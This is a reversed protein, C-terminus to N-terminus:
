RADALRAVRVDGSSARADITHPSDLSQDVEVESDGSDTDSQVRYAVNGPVAITVDGSSVDVAVNDPVVRTRVTVDGSSANARVDSGSYGEVDVDGSSASMRLPGSVDIAEVDGSSTSLVTDGALGRGTVDGSSGHVELPLDRPVHLVFDTECGDPGFAGWFGCSGSLKLTGGDFSQEVRPEALSWERHATVQVDDRDEAVVEIDGSGGAIKLQEVGGYTKVSDASRHVTLSTLWLAGWLAVLLGVVVGFVLFPRSLGNRSTAPM